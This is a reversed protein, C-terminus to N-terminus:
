DASKRHSCKKMELACNFAETLKDDPCNNFNLKIWELVIQPSTFDQARLIFLMENDKAKGFCGQAGEALEQEKRM